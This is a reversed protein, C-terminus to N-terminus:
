ASRETPLYSLMGEEQIQGKHAITYHWRMMIMAQKVGEGALAARGVLRGVLRDVQRKCAEISDEFYVAQANHQEDFVAITYPANDPASM